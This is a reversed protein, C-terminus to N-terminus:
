CVVVCVCVCVCVLARERERESVVVWAVCMACVCVCLGGTVGCWVARASVCAVGARGVCVCVCVSCLVACGPRSGISM